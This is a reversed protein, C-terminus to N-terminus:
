VIACQAASSVAGGTPCYSIQQRVMSEFPMACGNGRGNGFDPRFAIWRIRIVTSSHNSQAGIADAIHRASRGGSAVMRESNHTVACRSQGSFRDDPHKRASTRLIPSSPSRIHEAEPVTKRCVPGARRKEQHAGVIARRGEKVMQGPSVCIRAYATASATRQMWDDRHFPREKRGLHM